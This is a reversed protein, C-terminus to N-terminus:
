NEWNYNSFFDYKENMLAVTQKLKPSWDIDLRSKHPEQVVTSGCDEIYDAPIPVQLFDCLRTLQRRPDKCMDEHRNVFIDQPNIRKLIKEQTKCRDEFDRVVWEETQNRCSIRTRVAMDYPNRVTFLFKLKIGREKLKKKLNVLTNNRLLVISNMQSAKVGIVKLREFRGQYQNPVLIYRKDRNKGRIVRSKQPVRNHLSYSSIKDQYRLRDTNLIAYFLKNLTGNYVSCLYEGANKFHFLKHPHQIEDAFVINPHATLLYGILSSGSTSFGITLVMTRIDKFANRYYISGLAPKFNLYYLYYIKSNIIKKQRDISLIKM